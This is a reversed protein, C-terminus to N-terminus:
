ESPGCVTKSSLTDGIVRRLSAGGAFHVAVKTGERIEYRALNQEWTKRRRQRDATDVAVLRPRLPEAPPYDAQVRLTAGIFAAAFLQRAVAPLFRSETVERHGPEVGTRVKATAAPAAGRTLKLRARLDDAIVSSVSFEAHKPVQPQPSRLCDPRSQCDVCGGSPRCFVIGTRGESHPRVTTLILVRGDDCCLEDKATDWTWGPLRALLTKWDLRALIDHIVPDRPWNAAVRHDVEIRRISQVPPEAPPTALKFGRTLRLNWVSLGVLSALEQGPLHYSVIRDLGLERDEQAFRNEQGIRGFYAAIAEPAPWAEAPLDVAFLEVQWGDLTRGRKADGEHPFIAAVVRVTIPEYSSGDSRKTRRDPAVVQTGLDAAARRPGCLSDPVKYWTAARLRGLIDPDEYLKPRNLRTIFPLRRERCATFWPVNGFEGDMRVMTREMSLGQRVRMSQVTDLALEFDAM